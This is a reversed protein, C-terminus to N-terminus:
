RGTDTYEMISIYNDFGIIIHDLLTIGISKGADKVRMTFDIDERSPTVDGSPHNHVLVISVANCRLAHIFVDRPDAPSSNVTGKTLCKESILRCRSDLMMIHLEEQLLGKLEEMYYMAIDEPMRFVHDTRFRLRAIRKSLECIVSLQVAKVEGIGEIQMFDHIDSRLLGELGYCGNEMSLLDEAVHMVDRRRTGSRLMLALLEADTLAKPGYTIYKEYPRESEPIDKLSKRIDTKQNRM